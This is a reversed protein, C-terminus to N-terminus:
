CIFLEVWEEERRETRLGAVMALILKGVEENEIAQLLIMCTKIEWAELLGKEFM